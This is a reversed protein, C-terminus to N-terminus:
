GLQVLVRVDEAEVIHRMIGLRREWRRGECEDVVVTEMGAEPASRRVSADNGHNVVM